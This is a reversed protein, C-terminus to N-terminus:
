IGMVTLAIAAILVPMIFATLGSAVIRATKLVRHGKIPKDERVTVATFFAYMVLVWLCLGVYWLADAIVHAGTVVISQTGLVCTGAVMTFFGPARQHDFLDRALASRYRVLRLLTLLCLAAYGLWSVAVLAHAFVPLGLRQCALSVVGTAMVLAFYGPFLTEAAGLALRGLASLRM